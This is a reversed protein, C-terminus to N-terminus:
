RVASPAIGEVRLGRRMPFGTSQGVFFYLVRRRSSRAPKESFCLCNQTRGVLRDAPDGVLHDFLHVVPGHPWEILDVRRDEDVRDHHFDPVTLDAVSRDVGRHDSEGVRPAPRNSVSGGRMGGGTTSVKDIQKSSSSIVVM